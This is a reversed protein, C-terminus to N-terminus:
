HDAAQSRNAGLPSMWVRKMRLVPREIALWSIAGAAVALLLGTGLAITPRLLNAVILCNFIPMHYLYIGYSIDNGRLFRSSAERHAHALAFVLLALLIRAAAVLPARLLVGAEALHVFHQSAVEALLYGVFLTTARGELLRLQDSWISALVGLLFLHLHPFPTVHLLKVWFAGQHLASSEIAANILFSAIALISLTVSRVKRTQHQTARALLPVTAYFALEVPITWLSGNLVGVGYPRLADPNYFQVVSLQGALWFAFTPSGTLERWPGIAWVSVMSFGLCTWLAPYIRTVRNLGYGVVSDAREFSRWILFGSLVFFIPVGPFLNLLWVLPEFVPQGALDFHRLGHTTAVQLAAFLRILDFNNKHARM